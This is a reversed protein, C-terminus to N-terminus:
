GKYGRQRYFIVYAAEYDLQRSIDVMPKVRSDDFIWWKKNISNKCQAIYHGGGSHGYHNVVGYLDYIASKGKVNGDSCYRTLDQGEVPFNIQINNKAYEERMMYYRRDKINKFRKLHIVLLPPLQYTQMKIKAEKNEKCKKCFWTNHQDLDEEKQFLDFCDYLNMEGSM